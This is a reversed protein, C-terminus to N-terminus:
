ILLYVVIALLGVCTNVLLLAVYQFLTRRVPQSEGVPKRIRGPLAIALLVLANVVNNVIWALVILNTIFKASPGLFGLVFAAVYLGANMAFLGILWHLLTGGKETVTHNSSM